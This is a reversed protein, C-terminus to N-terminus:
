GPSDAPGYGGGGPTELLIEVGPDLLRQQKTRLEEGDPLLVVRGPAGDGGGVLGPAPHHVRQTIPAFWFPKGTRVRVRLRQGLGGQHRGAGGSGERLEKELILLPSTAEVVEASVGSIGSPFATASLGDKNPRAGMGGSLMLTFSFPGKADREGYFHIIWLGDAGAAMVRDPVAPALARFILSPILHGVTARASVPAPRVPNLISGEPARVKIPTFFGTNNPIDPALACKLAFVTYARTYNLVVNIGYRSQPSSGSFDAVVEGDGVELRVRLHIPEDYGDGYLEARYTGPPVLSIRERFARESRFIIEDALPGLGELGLEELLELLAAGGVENGAIQAELDGLVLEPHRVNGRLMAFLTENPEGAEYLKLLPIYLGEEFIDRAEASRIRGGVDYHHCCNALFGVLIGSRDFVPTIVTLDNLQGSTLWADNTIFIDGPRITEPPYRRLVEFVIDSISNIHGPTGTTAQALMRGRADYLCASLDGAERVVPTVSTRMLAAAQENVISILRSWAVELSVRDLTMPWYKLLSRWLVSLIGVGTGHLWGTRGTYDVSNQRAPANM